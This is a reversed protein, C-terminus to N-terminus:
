KHGKGKKSGPPEKECFAVLAEEDVEENERICREADEVAEQDFGKGSGVNISGPSQTAHTASVPPLTSPIPQRVTRIPLAPKSTNTAHHCWSCYPPEIWVRPHTKERATRMARSLGRNCGPTTCHFDARTDIIPVSPSTAVHTKDTTMHTKDIQQTIASVRNIFQLIMDRNAIVHILANGFAVCTNALVFAIPTAVHNVQDYYLASADM